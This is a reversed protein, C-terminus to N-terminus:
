NIDGKPPFHLHYQRSYNTIPLLVTVWNTFIHRLSYHAVRVFALCHHPSCQPGSPEWPSVENYFLTLQQGTWLLCHCGVGTGKGRSDWPHLAQHAATQPTACLPIRSFCSLLLLLLLLQGTTLWDESGRGQGELEQLDTKELFEPLLRESLRIFCRSYGACM